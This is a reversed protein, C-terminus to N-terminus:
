PRTAPYQAIWTAWHYLIHRGICSICTQDRPWSSGRSSFSPVWELTRAQSMGHVSSGLMCCDMPDYLTLCSQTVLCCCYCLLINATVSEPVHSFFVFHFPWFQSYSGSPTLVGEMVAHPMCSRRRGIIPSWFNIGPLTQFYFKRNM